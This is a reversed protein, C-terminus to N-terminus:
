QRRPRTSTWTRVRSRGTTGERALDWGSIEETPDVAMAGFRGAGGSETGGSETAGTSFKGGRQVAAASAVTEDSAM